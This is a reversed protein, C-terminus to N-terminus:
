RPFQFNSSLLGNFNLIKQNVKVILRKKEKVTM